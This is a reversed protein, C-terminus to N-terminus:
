LVLCIDRALYCNIYWLNYICLMELMIHRLFIKQKLYTHLKLYGTYYHHYYYYYYCWTFNFFIYLQITSFILETICRISTIYNYTHLKLYEAYFQQFIYSYYIYYYIYYHLALTLHWVIHLAYLYLLDVARSLIFWKFIQGM